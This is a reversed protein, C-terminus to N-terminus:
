TKTVVAFFLLIGLWFAPPALVFAAAALNNDHAIEHLVGLTCQDGAVSCVGQHQRNCRSFFWDGLSFAVLGIVAALAVYPASSAVVLPLAAAHHLFEDIGFALDILWALVLYAAIIGLGWLWHRVAGRLRSPRGGRVQGAPQQDM